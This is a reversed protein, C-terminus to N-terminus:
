SMSYGAKRFSRKRIAGRGFLAYGGGRRRRPRTSAISAGRSGLRSPNTRMYVMAPGKGAQHLALPDADVARHHLGVGRQACDHPPVAAVAVSRHQRPHRLSLPISSASRRPGPTSRGCACPCSTTWRRSSYGPRGQPSTRWSSPYARRMQGVLRLVREIEVGAHDLGRRDM